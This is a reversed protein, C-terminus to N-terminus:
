QVPVQVSDLTYIQTTATHSLVLIRQGFHWTFHGPVYIVRTPSPGATPQRMPTWWNQGTTPGGWPRLVVDGGSSPGEWFSNGGSPRRHRFHDQGAASSVLVILSLTAVLLGIRKM